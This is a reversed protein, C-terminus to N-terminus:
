SPPTIQEFAERTLALIYLDWYKSDYWRHQNLVGEQIFGNSKCIKLSPENYEFIEAYLKRFGFMLFLYQTILYGVEFGLNQKTKEPILYVALYAHKDIYNVNYTYTLGIVSSTSNEKQSAVEQVTFFHGFFGRDRRHFDNIFQEYSLIDRDAWWLHLNRTDSMWNFFIPLDDNIMPRLKIRTTELKILNM